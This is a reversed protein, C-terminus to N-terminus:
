FSKMKPSLIPTVDDLNMLMLQEMDSESGMLCSVIAMTLSCNCTILHEGLVNAYFPRKEGSNHIGRHIGTVIPGAYPVMNVGSKIAKKNKQEIIYPLVWQAIFKHYIDADHSNIPECKKFKGANVAAQIEKLDAIHALTKGLAAASLASKGFALAGTAAVLGVGTASVATGAAVAGAVAVMGSKLGMVSTVVGTGTVGMKGTMVSLQGLGKLKRHRNISGAPGNGRHGSKVDSWKHEPFKVGHLFERPDKADNPM